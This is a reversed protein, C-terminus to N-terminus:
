LICIPWINFMSGGNYQWIFQQRKQIVYEWIVYKCIGFLFLLLLIHHIYYISCRDLCYYYHLSNPLVGFIQVHNKKEFFLLLFCGFYCFLLHILFMCFLPLLVLIIATHRKDFTNFRNKFWVVFVSNIRHDFEHGNMSGIRTAQQPHVPGENNKKNERSWFWITAIIFSRSFTYLSLNFRMNFTRNGEISVLIRSYANFIYSQILM